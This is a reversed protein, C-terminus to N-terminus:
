TNGQGPKAGSVIEVESYSYITRLEGFRIVYAPEVYYDYQIDAETPGRQLWTQIAKHSIKSLSKPTANCIVLGVQGYLPDKHLQESLTVLTGAHLEAGEWGWLSYSQSM